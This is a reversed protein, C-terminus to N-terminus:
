GNGNLNTTNYQVVAAAASNLAVGLNNAIGLIFRKRPLWVTPFSGVLAVGSAIGSRVGSNTQWYSSAPLTGGTTMSDGYTSGDQNLPMLYLAFFSAAVTSGGTVLSFSVDMYDDLNVTNDIANATPMIAIFGNGLSNFDTATFGCTVYNPVAGAIPRIINAM